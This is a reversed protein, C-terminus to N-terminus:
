QSTNPTDGNGRDAGLSGTGIEMEKGVGQIPQKEMNGTSARESETGPPHWDKTDPQDVVM